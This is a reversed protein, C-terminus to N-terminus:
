HFALWYNELSQLDPLSAGHTAVIWYAAFLAVFLGLGFSMGQCFESLNNTVVLEKSATRAARRPKEDSALRVYFPM